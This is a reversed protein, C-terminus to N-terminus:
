LADRSSLLDYFPVHYVGNRVDTSSVLTRFLPLTTDIGDVISGDLRPLLGM